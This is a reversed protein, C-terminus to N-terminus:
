EPEDVDDRQPPRAAAADERPPSEERKKPKAPPVKSAPDGGAALEKLDEEQRRRLEAVPVEFNTEYPTNPDPPDDEIYFDDAEDFTEVGAAEVEQRLRESRVMDRIQESLSPQRKFGVPPAMPRPDVHEYRPKVMKIVAGFMERLSKDVKEQVKVM